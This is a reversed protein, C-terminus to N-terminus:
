RARQTAWQYMVIGRAVLGLEVNQLVTLWPLAAGIHNIDCGNLLAKELTM